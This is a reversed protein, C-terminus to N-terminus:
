RQMLRKLETEAALREQEVEKLKASFEASVPKNNARLRAMAERMSMEQKMLFIAQNQVTQIQQDRQMQQIVAAFQQLKLENDTALQKSYHLSKQLTLDATQSHFPFNVWHQEAAWFVGAVAGITLIISIVKTWTSQFLRVWVSPKPQRRPRKPKPQTTM